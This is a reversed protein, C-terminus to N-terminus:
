RPHSTGLNHPQMLQLFRLRMIYHSRTNKCSICAMLNTCIAVGLQM